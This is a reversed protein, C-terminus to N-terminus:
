INKFEARKDRHEILVIQFARSDSSKVGREQFNEIEIRTKFGLSKVIDNVKKSIENADDESKISNFIFRLSPELIYHARERWDGTGCRYPIINRIDLDKDKFLEKLKDDNFVVTVRNIKVIPIESINKLIKIMLRISSDSVTIDYEINDISIKLQEMAEDFTNVINSWKSVQEKYIEYKSNTNCPNTINVTIYNTSASIKINDSYDDIVYSFVMKVTELVDNSINKKVSKAEFLNLYKM